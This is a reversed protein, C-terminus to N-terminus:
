QPTGNYGPGGRVCWIYYYSTKDLPHIFDFNNVDGVNFTVVWALTTDDSFPTASWYYTGQEFHVNSFPNGSPLAPGTAPVSSDILTELELLTPLRWGFRNSVNTSSCVRGASLWDITSNISTLTPNQQWVLGTERDLVAKSDWDSLVIFRTSAPLKQDWSPNAYYPGASTAAKAHSAGFIVMGLLMLGLTYLWANKM